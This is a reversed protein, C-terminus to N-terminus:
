LVPVIEISPELEQAMETIVDRHCRQRDREVCLVAVRDSRALDVLRRLAAGSGNSLRARMRERGESGDGERFSSRNDQPNGLEPEHIYDIGARELAATLAKKSFGKRRSIANLRVDVLVTVKSQALREALADVELGEYGISYIRGAVQSM